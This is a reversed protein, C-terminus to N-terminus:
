VVRDCLKEEDEDVNMNDEDNYQDGVINKNHQEMSEWSMRQLARVYCSVTNRQEGITKTLKTLIYHARQTHHNMEEEIGIDDFRQSVIEDMANFTGDDEKWCWREGVFERITIYGFVDRKESLGLYAPFVCYTSLTIM